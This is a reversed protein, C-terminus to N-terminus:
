RHAVTVTIVTEHGFVNWIRDSIPHTMRFCDVCTADSKAKLWLMCNAFKM